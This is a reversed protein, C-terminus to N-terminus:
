TSSDSPWLEEVLSLDEVDIFVHKVVGQQVLLLVPGSILVRRATVHRPLQQHHGMEKPPARDTCVVVATKPAGHSQTLRESTTVFMRSARACASCRPNELLLLWSGISLDNRDQATLQAWFPPPAHQWDQARRADLVLVRGFPVSEATGTMGQTIILGILLPAACATCILIWCRIRCGHPQELPLSRRQILWALVATFVTVDFILSQWPKIPVSGLCGCNAEGALSKVGSVLSFIGFCLCAASLSWRRRREVILWTALGIEGIILSTSFWPAHQTGGTSAAPWLWKAFASTGLVVALSARVLIETHLGSPCPKAYCVTSIRSGAQYLRTTM